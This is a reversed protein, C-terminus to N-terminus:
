VYAVELLVNKRVKDIKAEKIIKIIDERSNAKHIMRSLYAKLNNNEEMKLLFKVLDNKLKELANICNDILEIRYKCKPNYNFRAALIDLYYDANDLLKGDEYVKVSGDYVNKFKITLKRDNPIVDLNGKSSIEIIQKNDVVKGRFRTISSKDGLDEYLDYKGEGYYSLVELDVPNKISNGKDKSLVIFSGAKVLVPISDISRYLTVVKEKEFKYTQNTFFDTWTGKPILANIKSFKSNDMKRTVPIVLINEGFIYQNKFDYSKKTDYYYYMPEILAVGDKHTKYSQSYIFPILQHRLRLFDKCIQNVGFRYEWPEKSMTDDCTNHLRNIPLFTGLQIFRCYLEDDKYGLMHGGIDHSWWTYGINTATATFYPIYDLTKWTIFTDASFGLPYRHSGVGCYRSLILPTKSNNSIDLFHYHNLSWLPDLGALKSKTGQQWDIWWFDVGDKEMPNHIISFYHNIFNTSTMDFKVQECTSPDIGQSLAFEEYCDEFWRIGDAPHLNLTIAMNKEKIKRLFRRYDPYLEKNWSYGTWGFNGGYFPTNRGKETIGFKQDLGIYYHWDMDITAVTFPIGEEEFKNLLGLYEKETYAHFRSWWNGLAYKPILPVKGTIEFLAKVAKKYNHKYAFIYHDLGDAKEDIIIGEENISLSNSDDIFSVGNRSCVGKELQLEHHKEMSIFPDDYQTSGDCKDLTRYTGFLNDNNDILLEKNSFAIRCNEREKSVILTCARTSIHLENNIEKLSYSVTKTNRYWVSQTPRDRFKKNPSKELRFLSDKLVTIRYDLYYVINNPNALSDVNIILHKNLM